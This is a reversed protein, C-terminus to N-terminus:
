QSLEPASLAWTERVGALVVIVAMVIAHKM